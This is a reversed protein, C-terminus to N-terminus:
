TLRSERVFWELGSFPVARLLFPEYTSQFSGLEDGIRPWELEHIRDAYKARPDM